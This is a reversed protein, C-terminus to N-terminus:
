EEELEDFDELRFKVGNYSRNLDGQEFDYTSSYSYVELLENNLATGIVKTMNCHAIKGKSFAIGSTASYVTTMSYDGSTSSVAFGIEFDLGTSTYPDVGTLDINKFYYYDGERDQDGNITSAEYFEHNKQMYTLLQSPYGLFYSEYGISLYSTAKALNMKSKTYGDTMNKDDYDRYNSDFKGVSYVYGDQYFDQVQIRHNMKNVQEVTFSRDDEAIDEEIRAYYPTYHDFNVFTGEYRDAFFYDSGTYVGEALASQYAITEDGETHVVDGSFETLTNIFYELKEAATLQDYETWHGYCVKPSTKSFDIKRGGEKESYWGEFVYGSIAPHSPNKDDGSVNQYTDEEKGPANIVFKTKDDVVDSKNSTSDPLSSPISPKSVDSPKSSPTSTGSCSALLPILALLVFRKKLKMNM